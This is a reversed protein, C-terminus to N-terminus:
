KSLNFKHKLISGPESYILTDLDYVYGEFRQHGELHDCSGKKVYALTLHPNYTYKSPEINDEGLFEKFEKNIQVLQPSHVEVKLVDQNDQKFLGVKKLELVISPIAIFFEKVQNVSVDDKVGYLITVHIEREPTIINESLVNENVWKQIELSDFVPFRVMLCGLGGSGENLLKLINLETNSM